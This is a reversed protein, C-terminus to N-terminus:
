PRMSIGSMEPMIMPTVAQKHALTEASRGNSALDMVGPQAQTATSTTPGQPVVEHSREPHSVM